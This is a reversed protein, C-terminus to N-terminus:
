EGLIPLYARWPGVADRYQKAMVRVIQRLHGLDHVAWTALLEKLRVPGLEPHRGERELEEPGLEARRLIELNDVRRRRFEELLEATPVGTFRERFAYRDFPEFPRSSGAELILRMRPIWDTDEGHILHGVVDRPSFTEPGENSLPWDDSLGGLLATLTGPTRELIEITRSLSFSLTANTM